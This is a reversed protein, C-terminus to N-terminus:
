DTTQVARQLCVCKPRGEEKKKPLVFLNVVHKAQVELAPKTVRREEKKEKEKEM